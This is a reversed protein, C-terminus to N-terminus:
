VVPLMHLLESSGQNLINVDMSGRKANKSTGIRGGSKNKMKIKTLMDRLQKFGRITLLRETHKVMKSTGVQVVFDTTEKEESSYLWWM